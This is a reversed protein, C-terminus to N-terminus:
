RKVPLIGFIGTAMPRTQAKRETTALRIWETVKYQESRCEECVFRPREQVKVRWM